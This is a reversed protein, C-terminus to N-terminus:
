RLAGGESSWTEAKQVVRAEAGWGTLLALRLKPGLSQARLSADFRGLKGVQLVGHHSAWYVGTRAAGEGADLAGVEAAADFVERVLGLLGAMARAVEGAAAADKVLVDTEGLTRGLLAVLKPRRELLGEYFRGIAVLEYLPKPARPPLTAQWRTRARELDDRLEGVASAEIAAILADKSPFYRYLAGATLDLQEALRGMTMSAFGDALAMEM